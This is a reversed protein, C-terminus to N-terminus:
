KEPIFHINSEEGVLIYTDTTGGEMNQDASCLEPEDDMPYFGHDEANEAYQEVFEKLSLDTEHIQISSGYYEMGYGERVVYVKM